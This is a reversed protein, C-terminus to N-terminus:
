ISTQYGIGTKAAEHKFHEIIDADLYITIRSKSDRLSVNKPIKDLFKPRSIRRLGAAKAEPSTELYEYDKETKKM